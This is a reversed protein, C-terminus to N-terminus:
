TTPYTMRNLGYNCLKTYGQFKESQMESGM